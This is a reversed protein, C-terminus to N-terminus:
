EKKITIHELKNKNKLYESQEPTLENFYLYENISKLRKIGIVKVLQGWETKYIQGLKYKGYEKDVRISHVKKGENLRRKVSNWEDKPFTITEINNNEQIYNLYESLM